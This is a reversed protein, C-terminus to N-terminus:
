RGHQEAEAEKAAAFPAIFDRVANRFPANGPVGHGGLHAYFTCAPHAFCAALARVREPPVLADAEGSCSLVAHPLPAASTVIEALAPDSPVFGACLVAFKFAAPESALLLGAMAAGQSFALLGDYPGAAAVHSRLFALSVDAGRARRSASPRTWAGPDEVGENEGATFWGRRGAAGEAAEDAGGFLDAGSLAHPADVYELDCGAKVLTGRLAGTRERFLLADQVYGHLCLVRLRGPVSAAPSASAM